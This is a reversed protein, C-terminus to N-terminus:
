RPRLRPPSLSAVLSLVGLHIAAACSGDSCDQDAGGGDPGTAGSRVSPERRLARLRDDPLHGDGASLGGRVRDAERGGVDVFAGVPAGDLDGDLRRRGREAPFASLLRLAGAEDVVTLAVDDRVLVDHVACGRDGHAEPVSLVIVGLDDAGIGRGVEGHDLDVRGGRLEVRKREGVRVGHQDSVGDDRDAAREAELVGERAPDDARKVALHGRRVVERIESAIWVSAAIL